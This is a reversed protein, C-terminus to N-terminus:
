KTCHILYEINGKAGKIPSEILGEIIWNNKELWNKVKLVAENRYVINTVIGKKGIKEKSLEFQPKILAILNINTNKYNNVSLLAKTISIFSLDCTIINIDNDIKKLDVFRVNTNDLVVVKDNTVLKWDLQGKGVDLSYVKEAKYRILVETFGGTSAGIDLCTSGNVDIDFVKFAHELKIGGRSVWQHGKVLVQIDVSLPYKTGSKDIKKGNVIVKGAMILAKAKNSNTALGKSVLIKDLREKHLM